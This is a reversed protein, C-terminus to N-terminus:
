HHELTAVKIFVLTLISFIFAQIFGVFIELFYFPLPAFWPVLFAIVILLVEGAFVNGFLRFSFSIIKALESVSELIGIIPNKLNVFRKSYNLVGATLIGFIQTAAVSIVALALTTNLDANGSRLLPILIKKGEHEEWIGIPGFGPFLGFWNSFLIFLFITMVLPFLKQSLKHDQTIGDMLKLFGEFVWEVFNQLGGPVSRINRRLVLSVIMLFLSIILSALLSNTIPFGAIDAIKEAALSISM